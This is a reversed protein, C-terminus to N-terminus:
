ANSWGAEAQREAAAARSRFLFEYIPKEFLIGDPGTPALSHCNEAFRTQGRSKWIEHRHHPSFGHCASPVTRTVVHRGAVKPYHMVERNFPGRIEGRQIQQEARLGLRAKFLQQEGPHNM